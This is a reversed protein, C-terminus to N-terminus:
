EGMLERLLTEWEREEQAALEIKLAEMEEYEASFAEYNLTDFM